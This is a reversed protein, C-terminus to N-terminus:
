PGGGVKFLISQPFLFGTMKRGPQISSSTIM